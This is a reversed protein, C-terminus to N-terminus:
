NYTLRENFLEVQNTSYQPDGLYSSMTYAMRSAKLINSYVDSSKFDNM